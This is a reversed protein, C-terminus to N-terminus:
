VVRLLRTHAYDRLSFGRAVTGPLNAAGPKRKCTKRQRSFRRCPIRSLRLMGTSAVAVSLLDRVRHWKGGLPKEPSRSGKRSDCIPQLYSTNSLNGPCPLPGSRRRAADPVARRQAPPRVDVRGFLAAKSAFCRSAPCRNAFKVRGVRSLVQGQQRACPSRVSARRRCSREHYM